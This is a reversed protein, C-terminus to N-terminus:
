SRFIIVLVIFKPMHFSLQLVIWSFSLLMNTSHSYKVAHINFNGHVAPHLTRDPWTIGNLCFNLDNPIDGFDGGYAWHKAGDAGVKLLGQISLAFNKLRRTVDDGFCVCVCVFVFVCVSM